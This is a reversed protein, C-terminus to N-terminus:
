QAVCPLKDVFFSSATDPLQEILPLEVGYISESVATVPSSELLLKQDATLNALGGIMYDAYKLKYTGSGPMPELVTITVKKGSALTLTLLLPKKGNLKAGEPLVKPSIYWNVGLTTENDLNELYLRLSRNPQMSYITTQKTTKVFGGNPFTKDVVLNCDQASMSVVSLLLSVLCTTIIRMPCLFLIKQGCNTVSHVSQM